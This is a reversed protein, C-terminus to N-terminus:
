WCEIKDFKKEGCRICYEDGEKLYTGCQRCQGMARVRKVKHVEMIPPQYQLQPNNPTYNQPPYQVYYNTPPLQHGIRPKRNIMVIIVIIIIGVVALIMLIFIIGNPSNFMNGFNNLNGIMKADITITVTVTSDGNSSSTDLRGTNDVIICYADKPVDKSISFSKTNMMSAESSYSFPKLTGFNESGALDTLIVNIYDSSTISYSLTCDYNLDFYNVWYQGPAITRTQTYPLHIADVPTSIALLSFIILFILFRKM